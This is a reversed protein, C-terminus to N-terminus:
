EFEGDEVTIRMEVLAKKVVSDFEFQISEVIIAGVKFLFLYLVDILFLYGLRLANKAWSLFETSM